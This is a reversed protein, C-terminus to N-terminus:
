KPEHVQSPFSSRSTFTTFWEYKGGGCMGVGGRAVSYIHMHPKYIQSAHTCPYKHSAHKTHGAPRPATHISTKYTFITGRATHSPSLHHEKAKHQAQICTAQPTLNHQAQICTAPSPHMSTQRFTSEHGNRCIEASAM